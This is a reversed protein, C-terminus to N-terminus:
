GGGQLEARFNECADWSATFLVTLLPLKSFLSRATRQLLESLCCLLTPLHKWHTNSAFGPTTAHTELGLEQIWLYSSWFNLTMKPWTSFKLDAQSVHFGTGFFLSYWHAYYFLIMFTYCLLIWSLYLYKNFLKNEFSWIDSYVSCCVLGELATPTPNQFSVTFQVFSNCYCAMLNPSNLNARWVDLSLYLLM